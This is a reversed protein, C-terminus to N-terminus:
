MKPLSTYKKVLFNMGVPRPVGNWWLHMTKLKQIEEKTTYETWSVSARRHLHIWVTGM